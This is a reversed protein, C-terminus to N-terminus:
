RKPSESVLRSVSGLPLISRKRLRIAVLDSAASSLAVLVAAKEVGLPTL